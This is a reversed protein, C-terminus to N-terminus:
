TEIQWADVVRSWEMWLFASSFKHWQVVSAAQDLLERVEDATALVATGLNAEFRRRAIRSMSHVELRDALSPEDSTLRTM